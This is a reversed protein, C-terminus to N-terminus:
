NLTRMYAIVDLIEQEKLIGFFGPMAGKGAKIGNLLQVDPRLMGEARKFNPAGPMAPVGDSGHCGACHSAYLKRGKNVDAALASASALALLAVMLAAKVHRLIGTKSFTQKGVLLISIM